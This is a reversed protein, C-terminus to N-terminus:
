AMAEAEYGQREALLKILELEADTHSPTRILMKQIWDESAEKYETKLLVILRELAASKIEENGEWNEYEDVIENYDTELSIYKVIGKKQLETGSGVTVLIARVDTVTTSLTIWVDCLAEFVEDDEFNKMKIINVMQKAQTPTTFTKIEALVVTRLKKTLVKGPATDAFIPDYFGFLLDSTEAFEFFKLLFAMEVQEDDMKYKRYLQDVKDYTKANEIEKLLFQKQLAFAIRRASSDEPAANYCSQITEIDKAKDLTDILLVNLREHAAAHEETGPVSTKYLEAAESISSVTCRPISTKIGLAAFVRSLNLKNKTAFENVDFM